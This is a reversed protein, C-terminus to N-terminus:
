DTQETLLRPQGAELKVPNGHPTNLYARRWTQVRDEIIESSFSGNERILQELAQVVAEYYTQPTDASGEGLLKRHEAGLTQSWQAPSFMGREALSFALGLAQAQWPEDFVPDNDLRALPALGDKEPQSL